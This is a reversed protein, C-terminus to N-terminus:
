CRVHLTKPSDLITLAFTYPNIFMMRTNYCQVYTPILIELMTRTKTILIELMARTKTILIDLMTRAYSISCRLNTPSLNNLM